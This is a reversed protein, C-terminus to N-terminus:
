RQAPNLRPGRSPGRGSACSGRVAVHEQNLTLVGIATARSSAHRLDRYPRYENSADWARAAVRDPFTMLGMASPGIPGNLVVPVGSGLVAGGRHEVTWKFNATYTLFREFDTVDLWVSVLWGLRDAPPQLGRSWEPREAVRDPPWEVPEAQGPVLLATAPLDDAALAAWSKAADDDAFGAIALWPPVPCSDTEVVDQVGGCALLTGGQDDAAKHLREIAPQGPTPAHANVWAVIYSRFRSM